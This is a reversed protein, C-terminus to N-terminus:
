DDYVCRFVDGYYKGGRGNGPRIMNGDMYLYHAELGTGYSTATWYFGSEGGNLVSDEYWRGSYVFNNPYERISESYGAGRYYANETNPNTNPEDGTLSKVLTYYDNELGILASGGSPLRWGSPCISTSVVTTGSGYSMSSAVVAPWSYYYGYLYSGDISNSNNFQITTNGMSWNNSSAPLVSFGQGLSDSGAIMTQADVSDDLRMNEVVWCKNDVLKAVAYVNDDREDRLAIIDGTALEDCSNWRQLTGTPELWIAYLHLGIESLDGTVITQNPGYITVTEDNLLKSAANRDESWGVFGHLPLSYNSALLTISSNSAATQYEMTGNASSNNKYYCIRNELCNDWQAYLTIIDGVPVLDIVSQGSEYQVGTGDQSTNWGMFYYTIGDIIPNGYVDTTLNDTVGEAIYQNLVNGTGTIPIGLNTGTPNYEVTYRFCDESLTAYYVVKGLEENEDRKMSYYGPILDDSAKIGYYLSFTDDIVGTSATESDNRITAFNGVVPVASFVSSSSPADNEGSYYYGWTNSTLALSAVGDSPAFYENPNNYGPDGDLYLNNDDVTSSLFLNYGSKCTTTINLETGAISVGDDSAVVNITELGSTTISVTHEAYSSHSFLIPLM